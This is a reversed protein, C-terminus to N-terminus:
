NTLIARPDADLAQRESLDIAIMKYKEKFYLYDFLCGVTSGDEPAAAMNSIKEYTKIYNNIPQDFFNRGDSKLNRKNRCKSSLIRFM